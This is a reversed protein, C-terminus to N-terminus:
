SLLRDALRLTLAAITLSPNLPSATVFVGSGVLYLNQLEHARLDRDVVSREPDDGMRVTGIQHGCFRIEDEPQRRIETAGARELVREIVDHAARLARREYEGVAYTLRPVPDGFRDREVPDLTVTNRPDPLQEVFCHMGVHHGFLQQVEDALAAGWRGDRAALTAPTPGVGNLLSLRFGGVEDRRSPNCFQHTEATHFGIRYPSIRERVRGTQVAFPHEMLHRGVMGSQNALGHPSRNSASLLLLRASEVAHAALVFCRARQEALRGDPAAYTVRRVRGSGDEELRLATAEARVRVRGTAEALAAHIEATYQARIPCIKHTACVAFAQCAPRGEFSEPSRAFPAHHLTIGLADCSKALLRDGHSFPFGPLPYGESRESAYPNDAVGSVGLAREARVYYPELDRYRIPWDDAIGFRSALEFDSEHLRCSYASWHLTTGGVGKVRLENLPYPTEGANTFADRTPDVRWPPVGEELRRRMALGRESLDYRPGAELLVVTAGRRALEWALLGGALGAGIICVDPEDGSKSGIAM